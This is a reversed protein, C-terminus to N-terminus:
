PPFAPMHVVAPYRASRPTMYVPIHSPQQWENDMYVPRLTVPAVVPYSSYQTHSVHDTALLDKM